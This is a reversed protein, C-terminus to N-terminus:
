ASGIRLITVDLFSQENQKLREQFFFDPFIWNRKQLRGKIEQSDKKIRDFKGASKTSKKGNPTDKICLIPAIQTFTCQSIAAPSGGYRNHWAKREM